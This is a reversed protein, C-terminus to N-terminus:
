VGVLIRNSGKIELVNTIKKLKKISDVSDIYDDLASAADSHEVWDRAVIRPNFEIEEDLSKELDEYYDFLTALANFSFKKFKIHQFGNIFDHKNVSTKM